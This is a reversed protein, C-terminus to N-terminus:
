PACRTPDAQAGPRPESPGACAATLAAIADAMEAWLGPFAMGHGLGSVIKLRAGPIARATDRGHELPLLADCDGHIVLCPLRLAALRERRDPAALIAAMQRLFGQPHLGRDFAQASLERQLGEDYASSGAAFARYVWAMYDQYAARDAPPAAMVARQADPSAPPLGPAGTTSMLSTLSLVRRPHDLALIQAIMGGMSQGCLHAAEIGLADMLGIVDAAMDELRYPALPRRAARDLRLMAGLDPKGLADLKQSGGIDRNDFRIVAHGGEALLRCFPDPWGIMQTALGMILILPRGLPDGMRECCLRLDNLQLHITQRHPM